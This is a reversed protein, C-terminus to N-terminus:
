ITDLVNFVKKKRMFKTHHLGQGTLLKLAIEQPNKGRMRAECPM